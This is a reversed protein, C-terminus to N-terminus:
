VALPHRSLLDRLRRSAQGRHSIAAKDEPSLEATTKRLSPVFFLPDYGFGNSGRPERLITGRVDGEATMLIRGTADALALVCVFRAGRRDDPVNALRRLLLANNAEDGSGANHMNAFRASHVGPKGGLADVALGSDDALVPCALHRAYGVAKLCANDRFTRGTEDPEFGDDPLDALSRCRGDFLAALEKAKGVNRTAILLDGSM